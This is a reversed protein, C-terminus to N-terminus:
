VKGLPFGNSKGKRINSTDSLLMEKEPIRYRRGNTIEMVILIGHSVGRDDEHYM